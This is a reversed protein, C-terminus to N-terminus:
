ICEPLAGHMLYLYDGNDRQVRCLMGLTVPITKNPGLFLFPNCLVYVCSGFNLPFRSAWVLERVVSSYKKETLVTVRGQNQIQVQQSYSPHKHQRKRVASM